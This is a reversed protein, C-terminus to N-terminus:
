DEDGFSAKALESKLTFAGRVVVLEGEVLGSQVALRQAGGGSLESDAIPTVDVPRRQYTRPGTQVFVYRTAGDAIVASAPVTLLRAAPQQVTPAQARLKAAAFMGPRLQRGSNPVRIVAKVTRTAPDVQDLMREVRGTLQLQPFAAFRLSATSGRRVSSLSREPIEALVLVSSLDAIRAIASGPEVATGAVAELAIVSGTIPAYIPLLDVPQGGARLKRIEREGLGLLRLRREAAAALAQVGREDTTGSLSQARQLTRVFDAQATLVDRSLVLAIPAGAQVRDGPVVLIREITGAARPSAVAVRAPDLEVQGPVEFAGFEATGEEVRVEDVAIAATNFAAESLVVQDSSAEREEAETAEEGNQEAGEKPSCAAAYFVTALIVLAAYAARPPQKMM